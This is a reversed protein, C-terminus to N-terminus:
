GHWAVLQPSIGAIQREPEAAAVAVATGALWFYLYSLVMGNYVAATMSNLLIGVTTAIILLGLARHEARKSRSVLGGAHVVIGALMLIHLVFGVMGMEVGLKLFQNDATLPVIGNRIATQDTTGLGAGWPYDAMATIGLLWDKTHSGASSTQWTITEVVFGALRPVAILAITSVLAIVGAMGTVLSPRRMLIALVIMEVACAIITMRTLSCVLGVWTTMYVTWWWWRRRKQVMWITAAPILLLFPIAFGQSSLYVSGSRQIPRGGIITWYNAPLGYDNGVTFESVGLFDQFYSAAGLLVLDDPTVVLQEVVAIAATLAGVVFLRKLFRDDSAIEPTARGVFYAVMFFVADRLGYLEEKIPLEEYLWIGPVFVFGIAVLILSGVVIDLWTVASRAGRGMAVRIIVTGLALLIIAEKWAAIARVLDAPLRLGGFLYATLVIHFPLLFVVAPFVFRGAFSAPRV